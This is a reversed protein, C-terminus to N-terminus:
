DLLQLWHILIIFFFTKPELVRKVAVSILSPLLGLFLFHFRGIVHTDIGAQAFLQAVKEEYIRKGQRKGGYPNIYVLLRRPRSAPPSCCCCCCCWLFCRWRPLREVMVVPTHCRRTRVSPPSRSGSATSGTAVCLRTGAPSRSRLAGGATGDVGRWTPCQCLASAFTSWRPSYRLIMHWLYIIYLTAASRRFYRINSPNIKQNLLYEM